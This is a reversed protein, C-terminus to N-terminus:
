KKRLFLIGGLLVLISFQIVRTRNGLFEQTISYAFPAAVAPTPAALALGLLCAVFLRRPGRVPPHNSM